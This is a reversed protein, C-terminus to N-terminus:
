CRPINILQHGGAPNPVIAITNVTGPQLTVSVTNLTEVQHGIIISFSTPGSAIARFKTPSGVLLSAEFLAGDEVPPWSTFVYFINPLTNPGPALNLFRVAAQATSLSGSFSNDLLYLQPSAASGTAVMTYNGGATVIQNDLTALANGSLATGGVNATGFGFSTAGPDVPACTPTSQGFALASGTVFQGNTTFAGSGSIGTTANFYRLKATTSADTAGGDGGCAAAFLLAAPVPMLLVTKM